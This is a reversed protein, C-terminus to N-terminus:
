KRFQKEILLGCILSVLFSIIIFKFNILNNVSKEFLYEVLINSIVIVFFISIVKKFYSMIM